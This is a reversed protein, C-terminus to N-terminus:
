LERVLEWGHQNGPLQCCSCVTCVVGACTCWVFESHFLHAPISFTNSLRLCAKLQWWWSHRREKFVHCHPTNGSLFHSSILGSRNSWVHSALDAYTNGKGNAMEGPIISFTHYLSMGLMGTQCSPTSKGWIKRSLSFDIIKNDYVHLSASLFLCTKLLWNWTKQQSQLYPALFKFKFGAFLWDRIDGCNLLTKLIGYLFLLLLLLRKREANDKLWNKFPIEERESTERGEAEWTIPRTQFGVSAGPTM